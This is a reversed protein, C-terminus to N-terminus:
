HAHHLPQEDLYIFPSIYLYFHLLPYVLTLPLFLSVRGFSPRVGGGGDKEPTKVM